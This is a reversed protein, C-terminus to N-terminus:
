RYEDAIASIRDRLRRARLRQREFTASAAVLIAGVVAFAVWRPLHDAVVALQTLVVVAAAAAGYWVPTAIRAGLGVLLAVGALVAVAVARVTDQPDAVLLAVTPVVALVLGPHLARRSRVTPDRLMWAAGAGLALGAPVASYAEPVTVDAARLLLWSTTTAAALATAGHIRVAVGDGRWVWASAVAGVVLVGTVVAATTLGVVVLSAVGALVGAGAVAAATVRADLDLWRGILAVLVAVGLGIPGALVEADAAALVAVVLAAAAVGGLLVAHAAHEPRRGLPALMAGLALAAMVGATAAGLSPSPAAWGVAVVAWVAFTGRSTVQGADVLGTLAALGAVLVLVTPDGGLRWAAATVAIPVAVMAVARWAAPRLGAMTVVLAVAAAVALGALWGEVDPAGPQTMQWVSGVQRGWGDLASTTLGALWLLAPVAAPIAGITIPLRRDPVAAAVLVTVAALIGIGGMVTPDALDFTVVAGIALAVLTATAAGTGYVDGAFALWLGAVVVGVAIPAAMAAGDTAGLVIPASISTIALGVAGVVAFVTRLGTGAPVLRHPAAVLLTMGLLAVPVVELPTVEIVALAALVAALFWAVAAAVRQWRIQWRALGLAVLVAGIAAVAWGGLDTLDGTAGYTHAAWVVTAALADALLGVAGATVHLERRRLWGAVLVASAAAGVLIAARAWAPLAEWTVAAFVVAAVALLAAGAVGLVTQAKLDSLRRRRPPPPLAPAPPRAATAALQQWLEAQHAHLEAEARALQWYAAAVPGQLDAHCSTCAGSPPWAFRTGCVPCPVLVDPPTLTTAM